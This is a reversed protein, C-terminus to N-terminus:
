STPSVRTGDHSRPASQDPLEKAVFRWSARLHFACWLCIGLIKSGDEVLATLASDPQGWLMDFVMSLGLFGFCLLLLLPEFSLITRHFLILYVLIGLGYFAFM